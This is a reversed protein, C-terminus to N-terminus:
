FKKSLGIQVMRGITFGNTYGNTGIETYLPPNEDFVNNVNLTFELDKFMSSESPVAYKFFLNVTNFAGVRSQPRGSQTPVGTTSALCAPTTTSDCRLADLGSSHNLTAQARFTGIDAGVTTSLQLRVAALPNSIVAGNALTQSYARLENIVPAGDGTQSKRSLTYNGSVGADIGGFGTEMSYSASFDLGEIDLTGYNGQRFDILAYVNCNTTSACRGAATALTAAANPAGSANLFNSIQALSLGGPNSTILNPFNAYISPSPTPISIRNKFRVNYYSASAHLGKIFPPDIDFGVSWIKATQPQLSPNSGQLAVIGTSTPTDGPRVFPQNFPFFGSTNRLAGLQDVPSPANFSTSWNGRFGLWSVPKLTAGFKPNTTGGFDSFHDYRVSGALTLSYIFGLRNDAGIVPVQVEGFVSHVQRNYPTYALTRITGVPADDSTRQQFKDNIYEYGGAIKVDGGPLSFLTGDLIARFNLLEERGQGALESDVLRAINAADNAGAGPNYFNIATAATTGNAFTNLLSSNIERIHYESNSRSYNFLTRLNWKDSLRAQFEANAGWEQFANTSTASNRGLLPALSFFVTQAATPSQGPVPTYYFNRFSPPVGFAPFGPSSVAALNVSGNFPSYSTSKREGYFGRVDVTLWDALEQHLGVLAGHRTSAPLASQDDSPDCVNAGAALSPLAYLNQGIQVNGPSCSRGLPTQSSSLTDVQRIWDRDRGFIASNHQYSYAAFLSGSGWDKGAIVGADFQRYSDAFGERATVKLGDFRKRTIFNIVGGVADSGYTASGGDTVVEVREIAITPILDPDIANQSVGVSAIRHGDFLVLTSASSSTEGALNRLNPRVVQIQNSAVGLRSTPVTNFLNTVQPVTALLENGSTAGSAAVQAQGVTIPSSGVPVTGRILSGTVIIDENASDNNPTTRATTTSQAFALAPVLAFLAVGCACACRIKAKSNTSM